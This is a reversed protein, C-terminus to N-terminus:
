VIDRHFFGEIESQELRGTKEVKLTIYVKDMDDINNKLNNTNMKTNVREEIIGM